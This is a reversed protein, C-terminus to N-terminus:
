AKYKKVIELIEQIEEASLTLREKAYIVRVEDPIDPLIDALKIAIERTVYPLKELEDVLERAKEAPLKSVARLYHLTKRTEFGVEATKRREEVIKELLEKTESITLYDFSLVEKFM